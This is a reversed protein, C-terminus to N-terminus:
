RGEGSNRSWTDIQKLLISNQDALPSLEWRLEDFEEWYLVVSAPQFGNTNSGFSTSYAGLCDSLLYDGVRLDVPLLAEDAVKDFSDCSCGWIAFRTTYNLFPQAAEMRLARFEFQRDDHIHGSLTRYVGDDIQIRRGTLDTNRDYIVRTALFGTDAVMYRGPEGLLRFGEQGMERAFGGVEKLLQDHTTAPETPKEALVRADAFGGGIDIWEVAIGVKKLSRAVARCVTLASGYIGPDTCQTGVHFALGFQSFGAQQAKQFVAQVEDLTVSPSPGSARPEFEPPVVRIGFKTSLDQKVGRTPVKIRVFLVPNYGEGPINEEILKEIEDESDVTTAWTRVEKLMLITDRDKRPNSLIMRKGDLGLARCLAVEYASAVDANAGARFLERLVLPDANAKVAYFPAVAPLHRNWRSLNARLADRSIALFPTAVGSSLLRRAIKANLAPDSAVPDSSQPM